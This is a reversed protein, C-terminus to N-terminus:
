PTSDVNKVYLKCRDWIINQRVRYILNAFKINIGKSCQHPSDDKNTDTEPTECCTITSEANGRITKLEISSSQEAILRKDTM